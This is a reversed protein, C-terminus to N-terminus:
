RDSKLVNCRRCALRVNMWSHAGGKALAIVHDISPYSDGAYFAGDRWESDNWDCLRGCIYCVGGDRDYLRQLTIDNDVLQSKMRARRKMESRKDHSKNACKETCYKKSRQTIFSRGCQQCECVIYTIQKYRKDNERKARQIEKQKRLRAAEIRRAKFDNDRCNICVAKKITSLKATRVAGCKNCRMTIEAVGTVSDCARKKSLVTWADGVEEQIDKLSKTNTAHRDRSHPARQGNLGRYVCYNRVKDRTLNLARAITVYGIGDNRMSRIAQEQEITM